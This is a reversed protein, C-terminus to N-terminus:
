WLAVCVTRADGCQGTPSNDSYGGVNDNVRVLVQAPGKVTVTPGSFNRQAVVIVNGVNDPALIQYAANGDEAPVWVNDGMHRSFTGEIQLTRTTNAPVNGIAQFSPDQANVTRWIIRDPIQISPIEINDANCKTTNWSCNRAREEIAAVAANVLAIDAANVTAFSSFQESHQQVYTLDDALRLAREYKDALTEIQSVADAYSPDLSPFVAGYNQTYQEYTKGVGVQTPYTLAFQVVKDVDRYDPVDGVYGPADLYLTTTVGQTSEATAIHASLNASIWGSSGSLAASL